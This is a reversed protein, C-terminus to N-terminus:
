TQILLMSSHPLQWHQENIYCIYLSVRSCGVYHTYVIDSSNLRTLMDNDREIHEVKHVGVRLRLLHIDSDVTKSIYKIPSHNRTFM